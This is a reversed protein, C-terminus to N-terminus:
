ICPPTPPPPDIGPFNQDGSTTWRQDVYTCEESTVSRTGAVYGGNVRSLPAPGMIYGSCSSNALDLAHGLEHALTDTVNCRYPEGTTTLGQDWLRIAISTPSVHTTDGCSSSSGGLYNVTVQVAASVQDTTFQPFGRGYGSCTSWYAAAQQLQTNSINVGDMRILDGTDSGQNLMSTCQGWLADAPTLLILFALFFRIRQNASM